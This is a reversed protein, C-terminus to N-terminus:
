TLQYSSLYVAKQWEEFHLEHLGQIGPASINSPSHSLFKEVDLKYKKILTEIISVAKASGFNEIQWSIFENAKQPESATWTKPNGDEDVRQILEKIM